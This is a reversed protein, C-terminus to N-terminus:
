TSPPGHAPAHDVLLRRERPRASLDLIGLRRPDHRRALPDPRDGALPQLRRRCQNGASQLSRQLSLAGAPGAHQASVQWPIATIRPKLVPQSTSEDEGLDELPAHHPIQEQLLMEVSRIRPDAHFREVMIDDQLYNILSLLIMGQHHVMFSRVIAQSKAMPLREDTFDIAEYLGYDGLLGMESLRNLNDLVARPKIDLALLSAYPAVVQHDSLGRKFGLGPVGFAQYQYFLNADFHYYGSESVGWPIDHKRGYDMQQEVVSENTQHLLTHEPSRLLLPPMLYEFMTGSWSLLARRGNVSTLPRGLHLWHKFPVDHKAIAVLSGIRAESALLDYYNGDLSGTEVNFGIHFVDRQQNYLLGFDMEDIYTLTQSSVDDLQALLDQAALEPTVLLISCIM